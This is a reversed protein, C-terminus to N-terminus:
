YFLMIKSKNFNQEIIHKIVIYNPFDMAIIGVYNYNLYPIKNVNYSVYKIDSMARRGIGSCHNIILKNTKNKFLYEKVLNQKKRIELAKFGRLRFYDQLVTSNNEFFIINNKYKFADVLLFIKGRLTGMTPVYGSNDLYKKYKEFISYISEQICKKFNNNKCQRRQFQVRVVLGETKYKNLFNIFDSFVENLTTKTKYKGHYIDGNGAPRLDFYRLGSYLQQTINWSQTQVNFLIFSLLFKYKYEFAYACSDHSGPISILTLNTSDPIKSMWNTYNKSIKSINLEKDSFWPVEKYIDYNRPFIINIILM